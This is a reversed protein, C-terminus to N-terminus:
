KGQAKNLEEPIKKAGGTVADKLPGFAQNWADHAKTLVGMGDCVVRPKGDPGKDELTLPPVETNGPNEKSAEEAGAKIRLIEAKVGAYDTPNVERLKETAADGGKTYAIGVVDKAVATQQNKDLTM